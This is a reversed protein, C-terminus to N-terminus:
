AHFASFIYPPIAKSSGMFQGGCNVCILPVLSAIRDQEARWRDYKEEESMNFELFAEKLWNLIKRM